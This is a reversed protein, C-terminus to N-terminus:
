KNMEAYIKIQLLKFLYCHHHKKEIYLVRICTTMVWGTDAESLWAEGRRAASKKRHYTQPPPKPCSAMSSACPSGPQVDISSVPPAFIGATLDMVAASSM